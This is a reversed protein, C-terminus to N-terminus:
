FMFKEFQCLVFHSNMRKENIVLLCIFFKDNKKINQFKGTENSLGTNESYAKRTYVPVVEGNKRLGGAVVNSSHSKQRFINSYILLPKYM